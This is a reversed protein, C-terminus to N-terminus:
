ATLPDDGRAPRRRVKDGVGVEEGREELGRVDRWRRVQVEVAHRQQGDGVSRLRRWRVAFLQPLGPVAAGRGAVVRQLRWLAAYPAAGRADCQACALKIRLRHLPPPLQEELLRLRRRVGDHRVRVVRVGGHSRVAAGRSGGGM